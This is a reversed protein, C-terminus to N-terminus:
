NLFGMLNLVAPGAAIILVTPLIFIMMPLTIKTSLKGAKEELRLLRARRESDALVRLAQAIPTGYRQAMALTSVLNSIAPLNVRESMLRLAETSSGRLQADASTLAFEDALAPSIQRLDYALRQLTANLGLGASVCIIMLDLADPLSRQIANQRRKALYDLVMRPVLSGVWLGIVAAAPEALWHLRATLPWAWLAALLAGLLACALICFMLVALAHPQRYGAAILKRQAELRQRRDLLPLSILRERWGLGAQSVDQTDEDPPQLHRLRQRIRGQVSFHTRWLLAVAWYLLAGALVLLLAMLAVTTPETSM